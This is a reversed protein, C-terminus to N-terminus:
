SLTKRKKITGKGHCASCPNKIIVGTGRCTNCTSSFSFFGQSRSIQGSGGCASCTEPKTGPKVGEGKCTDCAEERPIELKTEKGYVAEEFNIELDYRLDSGRRKRSRGSGRRGGGFFGEFLDEFGDFIDSFGGGGFGGFGGFGGAGAGTFADHGFQDYKARKQSDGLVEYAETAEKFKDEAEKNDPNRDPHYQVALKRYAKKIDDQSANRSVGLIEYYDRKSAM